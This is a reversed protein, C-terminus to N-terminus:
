EIGRMIEFNISDDIEQIISENWEIEKNLEKIYANLKEKIYANPSDKSIDEIKKCANNLNEVIFNIEERDFELKEINM